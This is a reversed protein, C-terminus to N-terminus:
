EKFEKDFYESKRLIKIFNKIERIVTYIFVFSMIIGFGCLILNNRENGIYIGSVSLFLSLGLFYLRPIFHELYFSREKLYKEYEEKIDQM